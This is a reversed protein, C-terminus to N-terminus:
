FWSSAKFILIFNFNLGVKSLFSLKRLQFFRVFVLILKDFALDIIFVGHFMHTTKVCLQQEM